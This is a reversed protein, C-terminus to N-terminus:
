LRSTAMRQILLKKLADPTSEAQVNELEGAKIDYTQMLEDLRSNVDSFDAEEGKLRKAVNDCSKLLHEVDSGFICVAVRRTSSSLGVRKLAESIQDTAALKLLFEVKLSRAVRLPSNYSLVANVIAAEVHEEDVVRDADFLQVEAPKVIGSLSDLLAAVDDLYESNFGKLLTFAVYTDRFRYLRM